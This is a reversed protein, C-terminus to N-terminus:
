VGLVVVAQDGSRLLLEALLIRLEITGFALHAAVHAVIGKVIAVFVADAVLLRRLAALHEACALRLGIQRPLRLGEGILLRLWPLLLLMVVAVNIPQRREDGASLRLVRGTLLRALTLVAVVPLRIAERQMAPASAM